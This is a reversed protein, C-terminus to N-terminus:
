ERMGKITIYIIVPAGILPTVSNLPLMGGAVPVSCIVNCVLAIVAGFLITFPLLVRHNDTKIFLRSIHPVALGIFSVPGCFATVVSTLVGTIVLISNRLRKTNFGLNEAYYEGLLLANLPKVMFVSATLGLSVLIVFLPMRQMSVGIFSGMGWVIYSKVGEAVAFSSTITTVASTLYGIMMGAILLTVNGRLFNSLMFIIITVCMAGIFSAMLVAMFGGLSMSGISVSGGMVLMVIAVGMGAGGNIGFVSPGALPNRFATQLLLGSSSLAAGAFMATLAQPLRVSTVIYYWVPNTDSTGSLIVLVDSIPIRVAGLMLSVAFLVLLLLTLILFKFSNMM